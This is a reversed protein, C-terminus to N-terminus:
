LKVGFDHLKDVFAVDLTAHQGLRIPDLADTQVLCKKFRVM